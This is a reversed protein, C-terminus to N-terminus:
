YRRHIRPTDITYHLSVVKTTFIFM